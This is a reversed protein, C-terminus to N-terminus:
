EAAEVAEEAEELELAGTPNSEVMDAVQEYMAANENMADAMDPNDTALHKFFDAADRLLRAALTANTTTTM